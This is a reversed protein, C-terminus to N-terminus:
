DGKKGTLRIEKVDDGKIKTSSSVYGIAGRFSKVMEIVLDDNSVQIPVSTGSHFKEGYWFLDVDSESQHLVERLFVQREPSGPNRDIFRVPSGDPWERQKKQYYDILDRLGISTMPNSKNVIFLIPNETVATVPMLLALFALISIMFQILRTHRM